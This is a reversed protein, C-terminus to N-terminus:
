DLYRLVKNNREMFESNPNDYNLVIIHYHLKNFKKKPLLPGYSGNVARAAIPYYTKIKLLEKRAENIDPHNLFLALDIDNIYAINKELISGFLAVKKINDGFSKKIKEIDNTISWINQKLLEM